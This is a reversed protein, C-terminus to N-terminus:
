EPKKPYFNFKYNIDMNYNHKIRQYEDKRDIYSVKKM